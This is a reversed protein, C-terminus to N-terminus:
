LKEIKIIYEKSIYKNKETHYKNSHKFCEHIEEKDKHLSYIRYQNKIDFRDFFWKCDDNDLNFCPNLQIWRLLNSREDPTMNYYHINIVDDWFMSRAIPRPPICAEVLFNFEIIDIKFKKKM